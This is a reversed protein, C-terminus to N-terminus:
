NQIRIESNKAPGTYEIVLISNEFTENTPVRLRQLWLRINPGRQGPSYAFQEHASGCISAPLICMCENHTSGKMYRKGLSYHERNVSLNAARQKSNAFTDVSDAFLLTSEANRISISQADIFQFFLLSVFLPLLIFFFFISSFLLFPSFSPIFFCLRFFSSTLSLFPFPLLVSLVAFRLSQLSSFLLM